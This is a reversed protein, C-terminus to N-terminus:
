LAWWRSRVFTLRSLSLASGFFFLSVLVFLFFLFSLFLGVGDGIANRNWKHMHTFQVRFDLSIFNLKQIRIIIRLNIRINSSYLSSSNRSSTARMILCLYYEYSFSFPCFLRIALALSSYCMSHFVSHFYYFSFIICFFSSFFISLACVRALSLFLFLYLLFLFFIEIRSFILLLRDRQNFVEPPQKHTEIDYVIKNARKSTLAFRLNFNVVWFMPPHILFHSLFILTKSTKM